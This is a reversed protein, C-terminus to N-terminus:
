SPAFHTAWTYGGGNTNGTLPTIGDNVTGSFRLYTPIAVGSAVIQQHQLRTLGAPNYFVASADNAEAAGGAHYDGTGAGNEEWLQFAGAFIAPSLLLSLLLPPIRKLFAM